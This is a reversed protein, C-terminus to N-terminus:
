KNVRVSVTNSYASVATANFAQVRYLYTARTVTDTYTRVNAGVTAVRVFATTGSPASEIAFGTENSSNDAWQLTVSGRGAAGTLSSPANLTAPNPSVSISVQATAKAGRNDTVTLTATYAGANQYLHSASATTVPASGDGFNWSYSAISGDPDSSGASSFAVTLPATGSVPTAM